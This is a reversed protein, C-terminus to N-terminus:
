SSEKSLLPAFINHLRLLRFSVDELVFICQRRASLVNGILRAFLGHFSVGTLHSKTELYVGRPPRRPKTKVSRSGMPEALSTLNVLGRLKIVQLVMGSCHVTSFDVWM